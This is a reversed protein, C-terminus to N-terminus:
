AVAEVHLDVDVRVGVQPEDATQAAVHRLAPARHLVRAVRKRLPIIAQMVCAKAADLAPSAHPVSPTLGIKRMYYNFARTRGLARSVNTEFSFVYSTSRSSGTEVWHPSNQPQHMGKGARLHFVHEDRPDRSELDVEGINVIGIRYLRELEPELLTTPTYLHYIKDGEIQFFFSVEPDFHFPTITTASSILISSDLRVVREDKALGGRIRLAQEFLAQMLERYRSDYNEPRKLLVRLAESDLRHLAEYPTGAGYGVSYFQTGPSQAGVAVFYDHDYKRALACLSDFDFLDLGSLDHEYAFPVRDFAARCDESLGIFHPAGDHRSPAQELEM